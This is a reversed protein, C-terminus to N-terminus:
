RLGGTCAQAVRPRVLRPYACATSGAPIQEPVTPHFKARHRQGAGGPFPTRWQRIPQMVTVFDTIQLRVGTGGLWHQLYHVFRM